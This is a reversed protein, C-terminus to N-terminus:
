SWGCNRAFVQKSKMGTILPYSSMPTSPKMLLTLSARASHRSFRASSRRIRVCFITPSASRLIRCVVISVYSSRNSFKRLNTEIEIVDLPARSLNCRVRWFKLSYTCLQMLLNRWLKFSSIYANCCSIRSGMRRATAMSRSFSLAVFIKTRLRLGSISNLVEVVFGFLKCSACSAANSASNNIPSISPFLPMILFRVCDTILLLCVKLHRSIDGLGGAIVVRDLLAWGAFLVSTSLGGGLHKMHWCVPCKALLQGCCRFKGSGLWRFRGGGLAKLTSTSSGSFLSFWDSYM